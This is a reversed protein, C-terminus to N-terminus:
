STLSKLLRENGSIVYKYAQEAIVKNIMRVESNSAPRREIERGKLDDTMVLCHKSDLPFFRTVDPLMIALVEHEKLERNITLGIPNDSTIFSSGRPATIAAWQTRLLGEAIDEANEFFQKVYTGNDMSVEAMPGPKLIWEILTERSPVYRDPDDSRIRGVMEQYKAEDNVAEAMISKTVNTAVITAVENMRAKAVPTRGYQVAIYIALDARKPNSLDKETVIESLIPIVVSEIRGLNEEVESSDKEDVTDVTYYDRSYAIGKTSAQRIRKADKDYIHLRNPVETFGRLYGRPVYHHDRPKQKSMSLIRYTIVKM